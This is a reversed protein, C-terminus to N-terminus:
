RITRVTPIAVFIVVACLLLGGGMVDVVFQAGLVSAGVGALFVSVSVLIARTKM